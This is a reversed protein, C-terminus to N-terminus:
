GIRWNTGDDYVPVNNAGGGAVISAFTTANADSVFACRGKQGVTPLTAVTYVRKRLLRDSDIVTNAGGFQLNGGSDLRAVEAGATFFRMSDSSHDYQVLGYVGSNGDSFLLGCTGTTIGQVELYITAGSSVFLGQTSSGGRASTGGSLIRGSSDIQGSAPLTTAGLTKNTLTETGALTALTGTTPLTVSTNATVTLTLTFAGSTTLNGGLTITGTNSVGTGGRAAPLTGTVAASQSLDIAGFGIATGSRRFVQFDSAATIDAVDGTSNASRGVVSLGASQRFLANTVGNTAIGLTTNNGLNGGGTMGSGATLTTPEQVVPGVDTLSEQRVSAALAENAAAVANGIDTPLDVNITDSNDQSQAFLDEIARIADPDNGVFAAIQNRKLRVM